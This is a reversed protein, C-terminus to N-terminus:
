VRLNYGTDIRSPTFLVRQHPCMIMKVNPPRLAKKFLFYHLSGYRFLPVYKCTKLATRPMEVRQNENHMSAEAQSHMSWKSTSGFSFYTPNIVTGFRKGKERSKM